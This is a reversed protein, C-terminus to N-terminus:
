SIAFGMVVAAAIRMLWQQFSSTPRWGRRWMVSLGVLWHNYLSTM